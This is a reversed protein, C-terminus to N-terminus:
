SGQGKEPARRPVSRKPEESVKDMGRMRGYLTALGALTAGVLAGAVGGSIDVMTDVLDDQEKTGLLQDTGFELCEWLAVITVAMSFCYIAVEFPTVGKWNWIWDTAQSLAFLILVTALPEVIHLVTDYWSFRAYVGFAHGVVHMVVALLTGAEAAKLTRPRRTPVFAFLVSAVLGSVASLFLLPRTTYKPEVWLSYIALGVLAFRLGWVVLAEPYRWEPTLADKVDRPRM